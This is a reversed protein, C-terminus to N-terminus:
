QDELPPLGLSALEKNVLDVMLPSIRKGKTKALEHIRLWNGRTVRVTLAVMEHKGIDRTPEDLVVTEEESRQFREILGSGQKKM